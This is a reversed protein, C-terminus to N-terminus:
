QGAARQKREQEILFDVVKLMNAQGGALRATVRYKGNVILEPTGSIQYSRARADAQSVQSKVGFSDFTKRFKDRDAGHSVFFEEIEDKKVLRKRELNLANFLPQHLEESLGMARAAYFAQAHMKMAGNWMAPSQWFDVDDAQQSAWAEVMPEFHFCHSCGYWFVEVVEIKDPSRTRVPQPLLQYNKGEQYQAPSDASCALPGTLALVFVMLLRAFM